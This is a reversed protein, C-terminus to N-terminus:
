KKKWLASDKENEINLLIAHITIKACKEDM